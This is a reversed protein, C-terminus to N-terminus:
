ICNSYKFTNLKKISTLKENKSGRFSLLDITSKKKKKVQKLIFRYVIM